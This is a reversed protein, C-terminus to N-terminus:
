LIRRYVYAAVIAQLAVLSALFGFAAFLSTQHALFGIAAPGMLIGLYGLTSVAPVATNIPMVTQKGLLSFFVPVINASGLGICFFGLFLLLQNPAFIVLLFGLFALGSGGLVVRKQGIRQVVWDGVLRMTLMAASFVTFGTGAMSLDFGRVTTLFVGGWDMVAGEVLFAICAIIGVFTVIGHPIAILRGGPEGGYPLLHRVSLVLIILIIGAAIATSVLPTFGLMGVWIGFLGAGVFGGVSWLGDMGSMLRRGAAKEVIVAQINVVVDICGMVAGFCLLVPVALWLSSVQCLILLICAYAASAAALVRRCGLRAAAAGSLPMTLLSGIGICLLLMGLVDEAIGLRDKLLPVLPAWSAAGFGGIFFVARTAHQQPVGPQVKMGQIESM